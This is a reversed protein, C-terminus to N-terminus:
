DFSQLQPSFEDDDSMTPTPNSSKVLKIVTTMKIILQKHNSLDLLFCLSNYTNFNIQLYNGVDMLTLTFGVYKDYKGLSLIIGCLSSIPCYKDDLYIHM